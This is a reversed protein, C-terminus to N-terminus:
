AADLLSHCPFPKLAALFICLSATPNLERLSHKDVASDMHTALLYFLLCQQASKEWGQERSSEGAGRV